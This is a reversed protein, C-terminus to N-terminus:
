VEKNAQHSQLFEKIRANSVSKGSLIATKIEEAVINTLMLHKLKKKKPKEVPRATGDCIYVYQDDLVNIVIFEKGADRGARSYVLSGINCGDNM